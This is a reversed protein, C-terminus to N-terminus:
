AARRKTSAGSAGKRASVTKSSVIRGARDVVRVEGGGQRRLQERAQAIAGQQSDSSVPSRRDGERLVEWRGAANQKVNRKLRMASKRESGTLQM